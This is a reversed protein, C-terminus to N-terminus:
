MSILYYLEGVRNRLNTKTIKFEKLKWIFSLILKDIVSLFSSAPIKILAQPFLCRLFATNEPVVFETHREM